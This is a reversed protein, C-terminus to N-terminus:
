GRDLFSLPAVRNGDDLRYNTLVSNAGIIVHDGLRCQKLVSGSEILCGNGVITGESLRVNAQLRTDAGICCDAAVLITEPSELTVGGLMLERNRRQQLTAQAQALEVRSNVGLVDIALPHIFTHVRLRQQNALAVIDTLYVEGQANNTGVQRLAEFLFSRKVLYIGANIERIQRQEDTADKEEVIGLIRGQPDNLIRGYGFPEDVLTTMLTLVAQQEHHARIMEQLTEARILPTDGCLILVEGHDACAQEACLVAHGTGLQRDQVVTTVAYPLLIQEVEQRQHGVIVACRTVGTNRVADLVHHIMPRFFVQHLVKAVASKMRTGKGAALVVAIISPQMSFDQDSFLSNASVKYHLFFLGTQCAEGPPIAGPFRGAILVM